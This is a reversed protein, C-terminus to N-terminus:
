GGCASSCNGSWCTQVSQYMTNTSCGAGQGGGLLCSKCAADNVCTSIDTCCSQGLCYDCPSSNTTLGSDCIGSTCSMACTTDQCMSAAQYLTNTDCGAPAPNTTLCQACTQDGACAKFSDCCNDNLCTGCTVDPYSLGSDCIPTACALATACNDDYCKLLTQLDAVGGPAVNTSCNKQCASDGAACNNLCVVLAGCDSTTNPDCAALENCCSDLMCQNCDLNTNDWMLSGCGTGGSSSSSSTVSGSSSSVTTGSSSSSSTASGGGGTNGTGGGGCAVLAVVSGVAAAWAWIKM